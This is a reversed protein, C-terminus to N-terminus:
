RPLPPDDHPQSLSPPLGSDVVPPQDALPSPLAREDEVVQLSPAATPPQAASPGPVENQSRLVSSRPPSPPSPDQDMTHASADGMGRTAGLPRTRGYRKLREERAAAEEADRKAKLRDVLSGVNQIPADTVLGPPSACSPGEFDGLETQHVAQGERQTRSPRLAGVAQLHAAVAARGADRAAEDMPVPNARAKRRRQKSAPRGTQLDGPTPTRAQASEEGRAQDPTTPGPSQRGLLEQQRAEAEDHTPAGLIPEPASSTRLGAPAESRLESVKVLRRRRRPPEAEASVDHLPPQAVVGAVGLGPTPPDGGSAPSRDGDSAPFGPNSEIEGIILLKRDPSQKQASSGVQLREPGMRQLRHHFSITMPDQMVGRNGKLQSEEDLARVLEAELKHVECTRAWEGRTSDIKFCGTLERHMGCFYKLSGGDKVGRMAFTAPASCEGCLLSHPVKDGLLYSALEEKARRAKRSAGGAPPRAENTAAPSAPAPSATTRRAGHSASAPQQLGELHAQKISTLVKGFGDQLGADPTSALGELGAMAARLGGVWAAKTWLLGVLGLEKKARRCVLGAVKRFIRHGRKSKTLFSRLASAVFARIASTPLADSRSANSLLADQVLPREIGVNFAPLDPQVEAHAVSYALGDLSGPAQM